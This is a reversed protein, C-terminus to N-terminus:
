IDEMDVQTSENEYNLYEADFADQVDKWSVHKRCIDSQASREADWAAEAAKAARMCEAETADGRIWARRTEIAIRPRDDDTLHLVREACDCAIAALVKRDFNLRELLWIMWDGRDCKTWATKIQKRGVWDVATRCADMSILQQKLNNMM